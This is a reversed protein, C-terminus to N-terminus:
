EISKHFTVFKNLTFQYIAVMAISGLKVILSDGGMRDIGLWLILNSLCLGSLGVALFTLFRRPTKDLIRFNYTRNLVFSTTIGLMVSICNAVIYYWGCFRALFTFLVLDLMSALCGIIGYLIINRLMNDGNKGM